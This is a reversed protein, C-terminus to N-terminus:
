ALAKMQRFSDLNMKYFAVACDHCSPRSIKSFIRIIIIIYKRIPTTVGTAATALATTGSKSTPGTTPAYTPDPSTPTGVDTPGPSTPAGVDTPDPSTPTGIDTPATGISSTTQGRVLTIICLMILM